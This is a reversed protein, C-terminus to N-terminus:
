LTRFFAIVGLTSTITSLLLTWITSNVVFSRGQMPIAYIIDNPMIYYFESSLISRDALSFEKIIPGYPSPRILKIMQRNGFSTMEGVISM